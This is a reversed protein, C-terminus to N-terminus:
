RPPGEALLINTLHVQWAQPAGRLGYLWKRLKWLVQGNPIGKESIYDDPPKIYIDQETVSAHLFASSVDALMVKYQNVAAILDILKVAYSSPTSAFVEVDRGDNTRFERACLRSKVSDGRRKDVWTSTIAKTKAESM